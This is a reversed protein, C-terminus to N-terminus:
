PIESVALATSTTTETTVTTTNQLLVHLREYQNAVPEEMLLVIRIKRAEVMPFAFVGLGQVNFSVPGLEKNAIGELQLQKNAEPTLVKDFIQEDFGEVTEFGEEDETSTAVDLVRIFASTSFLVPDLTVFNVPKVTQLDVDVNIVFDRGAYDYQIAADEAAQLNVTLFGADGLTGTDETELDPDTM